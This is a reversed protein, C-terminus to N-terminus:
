EIFPEDAITQKFINLRIFQFYQSSTTLKKYAFPQIPITNTESLM